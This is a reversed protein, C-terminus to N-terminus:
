NQHQQESQLSLALSFFFIGRLRNLSASHFINRCNAFTWRDFSSNAGGGGDGAICVKVRLLCRIEYFTFVDSAASFASAGKGKKMEYSIGHIFGEVM